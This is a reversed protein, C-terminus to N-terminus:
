ACWQVQVVFTRFAGLALTVCHWSGLSTWEVLTWPLFGEMGEWDRVSDASRLITLFFSEVGALAMRTGSEGNELDTEEDRSPLEAPRKEEM